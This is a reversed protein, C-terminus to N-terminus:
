EEFRSLPGLQPESLQIWCSDSGGARRFRSAVGFRKSWVIESNMTIIPWNRREWLPIRGAEFCDKLSGAPSYSDGPRWNRIALGTGAADWVFSDSGITGLSTRITGAPLSVTGPVPLPYSWNRSGATALRTFRVWDFSRMVDIGPVQLRGSGIQPAFLGLIAEVHRFDLQKGGLHGIAWRVQRRRLPIDVPTTPILVAHGDTLPPPVLSHLFQDEDRAIEATRALQASLHPNWDRVLAPLLTHRIRNRTFRPDANSSDVRWDLGHQRLYACVESRTVDLLPRILGEQTVPLIAALGAPGTGRLLRFLVTEAQDDQTHGTAVRDILGASRLDAFHALRARRADDESPGVAVTAGHFPLGHTRALSAVFRADEESAEGRLQHNLHVVSLQVGCLPAFHRLVALLCVSDAGGSVAVGVRDGPRLM